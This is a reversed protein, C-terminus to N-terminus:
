GGGLRRLLRQWPPAVAAAGLPGAPRGLVGPGVTVLGPAPANPNVSWAGAVRLVDEENPLWEAPSQVAWDLAREAATLEGENALIAGEEGLYAFVREVVGQRARLWHHYEVTRQTAFAQAEGFRVSLTRTLEAIAQVGPAGGRGLAWPGAALVWGALAPTVFVEDAGAAYIATVGEDWGAARTGVLGLAAAVAGPASSRVTFWGLKYGFPLPAAGGAARTAAAPAARALGTLAVEALAAPSATAPLTQEEHVTRGRSFHVTWGTATEDLAAVAAGALFHSWSRAGAAAVVVPPAPAPRAPAPPAALREALVAALAAPEPAVVAVPAVECIMGERTRAMTPIYVRGARLWVSQYRM